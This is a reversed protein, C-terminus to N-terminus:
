APKWGLEKSIAEARQRVVPVLRAMRDEPMYPLASAVSLAAVVQGSIDRVPAGVCRIGMENEELDLVVGQERYRRMEAVYDDWPRLPPKDPQGERAAAARQYLADWRAEDMGLMLAKGVGTSALPMRMGVRSRMELGKTGSVKDLYFVEDGEVTGLHVTDGTQQALVELHPRALAALPRQEMAKTGLYLLKPGLLYGRYPIHHLYGDQVLSSLMRHTTSRPTGLRAAIGRVDSVGDAVCELLALGRMLTQTGSASPKADPAAPENDRPEAAAHSPHLSHTTTQM